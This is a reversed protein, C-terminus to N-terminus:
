HSGKSLTPTKFSKLEARAAKAPIWPNLMTKRSQWAICGRNGQWKSVPLVTVAELQRYMWNDEALEEQRNPLM